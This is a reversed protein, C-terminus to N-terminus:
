DVAEVTGAKFVDELPPPVDDDDDMWERPDFTDLGALEDEVGARMAARGRATLWDNTIPGLTDVPEILIRGSRAYLDAIEACHNTGAVPTNVRPVSPTTAAAVAITGTGSSHFANVDATEDDRPGDLV